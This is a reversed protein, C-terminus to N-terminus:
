RASWATEVLADYTPTPELEPSVLAFYDAPRDPLIDAEEQGSDGPVADSLDGAHRTKARM